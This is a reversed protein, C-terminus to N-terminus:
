KGGNVPVLEVGFSTLCDEPTKRFEEPIHFFMGSAVHYSFSVLIPTGKEFIYLYNVVENGNISDDEISATAISCLVIYNQGAYGNLLSALAQINIHKRIQEQLASSFSSLENAKEQDSSFLLNMLAEQNYRVAYVAVPNDYDHTNMEDREKSFFDPNSFLSLYSESDIIESMTSTVKLGIRYYDPEKAECFANEAFCFLLASLLLISIRKKFNM